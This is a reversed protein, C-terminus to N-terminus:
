NKELIAAFFGDCPHIGPITRLYPGSLMSDMDNWALEGNARLSELVTKCEVMHFSTNKSVAESVVNVNEEPELSCTAYVLRGGPATLKM